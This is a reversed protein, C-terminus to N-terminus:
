SKLRKPCGSILNLLLLRIEDDDKASKLLPLMSDILLLAEKAAGLTSGKKQSPYFIEPADVGFKEIRTYITNERVGLIKAAEKVSIIAGKYPINVTQKEENQQKWTAWRFNLPHYNGRRKPYRDLTLDDQYTKIVDTFFNEYNHWRDCVTVGIGGYRKYSNCTPNYCRAMMGSWIKHLRHATPANKYKRRSCGCSKIRGSKVGDIAGEFTKGCHCKFVGRKKVSHGGHYHWDAEKIFLPKPLSNLVNDNM